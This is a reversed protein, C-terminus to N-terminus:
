PCVANNVVYFFVDSKDENGFIVVMGTCGENVIIPPCNAGMGGSDDCELEKMPFARTTARVNVSFKGFVGDPAQLFEGPNRSTLKGAWNNDIGSFDVEWGGLYPEIEANVYVYFTAGTHSGTDAADIKQQVVHWAEHPLHKEAPNPLNGM